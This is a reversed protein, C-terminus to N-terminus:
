QHKEKKNCVLQASKLDSISKCGVCFMAIKLELILSEVFNECESRSILVAKLFESANGCIDAGLAISKAIDVGNKIGGSAIIKVNKAESSINKICEATPNGWNVFAKASKQLVVDSSRLSELMSWSISGAGATEIGYVGASYLKAAVFSSIGNGVEKVIVPVYLGACIHEIKKLLGSFNTNGGSQFVEQLPNLHLLLADADVMEVARKCEDISFGYNLQVAGLNALIPIDPAYNRIRFSKSFDNNELAIRQSGVAFCMGFDNAMEALAKNIKGSKEAGGTMSSILMPFKIDRGLFRTATSIEAFDIEPLANHVFRYDDLGTSVSSLVENEFCLRLHDDKRNSIISM